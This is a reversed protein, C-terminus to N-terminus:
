YIALLLQQFQVNKIDETLDNGKLIERSILEKQLLLLDKM